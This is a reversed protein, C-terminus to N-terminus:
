HNHGSFLCNILKEIYPPIKGGGEWESIRPQGVGLIEAMGSQSVQWDLRIKKLEAGTM